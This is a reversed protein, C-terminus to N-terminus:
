AQEVAHGIRAKTSRLEEEAELLWPHMSPFSKRFIRLAEERHALAAETRNERELLDAYLGLRQGLRYDDPGHNEKEIRIARIIMEEAEVMESRAILIRALNHLRIAVDPHNTGQQEALELARRAFPEAEPVRGMEFLLVVLNSLRVSINPRDVLEAIELSRRMIAEAESRRGTERLLTVFNNLFSGMEKSKDGSARDSLAIARKMLLEAESYLARAQLFSGLDAM